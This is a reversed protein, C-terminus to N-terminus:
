NSEPLQSPPRRAATTSSGHLVVDSKSICSLGTDYRELVQGNYSFTGQRLCLGTWDQGEAMGRIPCKVFAMNGNLMDLYTTYGGSGGGGMFGGAGGNGTGIGSYHHQQAVHDYLQLVVGNGLM